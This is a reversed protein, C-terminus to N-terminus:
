EREAEKAKVANCKLRQLDDAQMNDSTLLATPKPTSYGQGWKSCFLHSLAKCRM